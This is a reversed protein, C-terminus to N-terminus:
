DELKPECHQGLNVDNLTMLNSVGIFAISKSYEMLEAYDDSDTCTTMLVKLWQLWNLQGETQNINAILVLVIVQIHMM